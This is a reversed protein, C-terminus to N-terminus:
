TIGYKGTLEVLDEATLYPAANILQEKVLTEFTGRPDQMYTGNVNYGYIAYQKDFADILANKVRASSTSTVTSPSSSSSSSAADQAQQYAFQENYQRIDEEAQAKQLALSENYQRISEELQQTTLLANAANQSNAQQQALKSAQAQVDADNISTDYDRVQNTANTNITGLQNQYTNYYNAQATEGKGAGGLGSAYASETQVGYPNINKAYDSYAGRYATQKDAETQQKQAKLKEIQNKTSLDIAENAAAESEAIKNLYDDYLSM